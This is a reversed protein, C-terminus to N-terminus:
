ESRRLSENQFQRLLEACRRGGRNSSIGGGELAIAAIHFEMWGHLSLKFNKRIRCSKLSKEAEKGITDCLIIASIYSCMHESNPHVEAMGLRCSLEKVTQFAAQDLHPFSFVYAYEHNEAAWLQAKRTLVYKESRSHFFCTAALGHEGHEVPTVDYCEGYSLLTKKLAIERTVLV